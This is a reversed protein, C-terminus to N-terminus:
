KCRCQSSSSNPNSLLPWWSTASGFERDLIKRRLLLWVIVEYYLLTIFLKLGFERDVKKRGIITIVVSFTRGPLLM